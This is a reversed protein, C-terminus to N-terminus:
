KKGKWEKQRSAFLILFILAMRRPPGGTQGPWRVHASLYITIVGLISSIISDVQKTSNSVGFPATKKTQM